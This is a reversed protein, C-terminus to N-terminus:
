LEFNKLLYFYCFKYLYPSVFLFHKKFLASTLNFFDQDKINLKVNIIKLMTLNKLQRFSVSSCVLGGEVIVLIHLIIIFLWEWLYKYLFKFFYGEGISLFSILKEFRLILLNSHM